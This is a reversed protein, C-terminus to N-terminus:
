KGQITHKQLSTRTLSLKDTFPKQPKTLYQNHKTQYDQSISSIFYLLCM